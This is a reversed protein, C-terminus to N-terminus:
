EGTHIIGSKFQSLGRSVAVGSEVKRLEEGKLLTLEELRMDQFYEDLQGLGNQFAKELIMRRADNTTKDRAEEALSVLRKLGQHLSFLAKHDDPADVDSFERGPDLFFDQTAMVRRRMEELTQLNESELEWPAAVDEGAQSRGAASQALPSSGVTAATVRASYWSTLLSQNIGVIAV